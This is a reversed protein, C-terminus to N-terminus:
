KAKRASQLTEEILNGIIDSRLISNDNKSPSVSIVAISTLLAVDSPLRGARPIIALKIARYM